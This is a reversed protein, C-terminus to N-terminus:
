IDFLMKLIMFLIYLNKVKLFSSLNEIEEANNLNEKKNLEETNSSPLNSILKEESKESNYNLATNVNGILNTKPKEKQTAETSLTNEKINNKNTDISETGFNNNDSTKIIEKNYTNLINLNNQTNKENQNSKEEENTLNINNSKEVEDPPDLSILIRINTEKRYEDIKLEYKFPYNIYFYDIDKKLKISAKLNNVDHISIVSNIM